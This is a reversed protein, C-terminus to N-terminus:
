NQGEMAWRINDIAEVLDAADDENDNQYFAEELPQIVEHRLAWARMNEQPPNWRMENLWRAVKVPHSKLHPQLYRSLDSEIEWLLWLPIRDYKEQNEANELVWRDFLVRLAEVQEAPWQLWKHRRLGVEINDIQEPMIKPRPQSDILELGRPLFYKFIDAEFYAISYPEGCILKHWDSATLERLPKRIDKYELVSSPGPGRYWAFVRYLEEIYDRSM